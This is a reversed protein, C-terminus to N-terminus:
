WYDSIERELEGNANQRFIPADKPIMTDEPLRKLKGRSSFEKDNIGVESCTGSDFWKLFVKGSKARYLFATKYRNEEPITFILELNYFIKQNELTETSELVKYVYIEWTQRKSFGLESPRVKGLNEHEFNSKSFYIGLEDEFVKNMDIQFDKNKTSM